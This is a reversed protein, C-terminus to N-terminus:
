FPLDDDFGDGPAPAPARRAPAAGAQDHQRLEFKSILVADGGKGSLDPVGAPNFTRNLLWYESGDDALMVRGVTVWNGRREGNQNTYEAVKVKLEHTKRAAM